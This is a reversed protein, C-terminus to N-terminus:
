LMGPRPTMHGYPNISQSVLHATRTAATQMVRRARALSKANLTPMEGIAEYASSAPTEVVRISSLYTHSM